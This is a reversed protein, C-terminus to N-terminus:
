YFSEESKVIDTLKEPVVGIHKEPKKM